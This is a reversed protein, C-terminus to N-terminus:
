TTVTLMGRINMKRYVPSTSPSFAIEHRLQCISSEGKSGRVINLLVIMLSGFSTLGAGAKIFM